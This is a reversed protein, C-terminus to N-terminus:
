QSTESSGDRTWVLVVGCGMRGGPPGKPLWIPTTADGAYVEIGMVDKPSPLQTIDFQADPRSGVGALPVGDLYVQMPCRTTQRASLAHLAGGSYELKIARALRLLDSTAVFNHREITRQDFFEGRGLRMREEFGRLRPSVHRASTTMPALQPPEQARAGRSSLATGLLAMAAVSLVNSRIRLRVM